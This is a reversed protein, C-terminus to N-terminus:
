HGVCATQEAQIAEGLEGFVGEVAKTAAEGTGEPLSLGAIGEELKGLMFAASGYELAGLPGNKAYGTVASGLMSLGTGARIMSVGEVGGEAEFEIGEPAFMAGAVSVGVIGIDTWRIAGGASSITKGLAAMVAKAATCKSQDCLGLPDVNSIPDNEAYVYTNIGGALGTPDSEMHRGLTANYDRAGNYWLNDEQDYYQGPFGLNFQGLKQVTVTRDFPHNQASWRMYTKSGGDTVVMPRVTQDNHVPFTGGGVMETILRGDLYVYDFWTGSQDEALLGAGQDPAFYTTGSAGTKELRQGEASIM